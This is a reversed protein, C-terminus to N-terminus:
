GNLAKLAKTFTAPNKVKAAATVYASFAEGAASILSKVLTNDAKSSGLDSSYAASGQASSGSPSAAAGQSYALIPNLGAAKLDAVSRQYATNAMERNFERAKTAELANFERAAAAEASNFKQQQLIKAQEWGVNYRTPSVLDRIELYNRAGEYNGFSSSTIDVPSLNVNATYSPLAEDLLDVMPSNIGLYKENRAAESIRGGAFGRYRDSVDYFSM